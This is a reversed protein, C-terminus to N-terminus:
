QRTVPFGFQFKLDDFCRGCMGHSIMPLLEEEFLKLAVIAEEIEHWLVESIKVKKCWSCMVVPLSSRKQRRDILPEEPRDHIEVVDTIFDVHTLNRQRITMNMLRRQRPSDCRFRFEVTGSRRVKLIMERYFSATELDTIFDWIPRNFIGPSVLESADNALAFENWHDNVSVIRDDQDITYFVQTM